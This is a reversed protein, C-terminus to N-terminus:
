WISDGIGLNDSCVTCSTNKKVEQSYLKTTIADYQVFRPRDESILAGTVLNIVETVALSAVVGNFSIIQGPSQAGKVYEPKGNTEIRIRGDTLLGSCYMCAGGPLYVHIHGAVAQLGKVRGREQIQTGIGIDILPILHRWAFRILEARSTFTDVCSIIIDTEKLRDMGNQSPFREAIAEVKTGSGTESILREMVSTKPKGVDELKSEVMRSRNRNEVVDPDVLIMHGFGARAVQQAVHSGGGGLGVIGISSGRLLGQGYQGILLEQSDHMGGTSIAVARPVPWTRIPSDIWIASDIPRIRGSPLRVLGGVSWDRGLVLSGHPRTPILIKLPELLDIFSKQDILSLAPQNSFSHSHVVMVGLRLQLARQAVDATFKPNWASGRHSKQYSGLPVPHISHVVVREREATASLGILALVARECGHVSPQDLEESLSIGIELPFRVQIGRESNHNTQDALDVLSVWSM